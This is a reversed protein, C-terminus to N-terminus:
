ADYKYHKHCARPGYGRGGWKKYLKKKLNSLINQDCVPKLNLESVPGVKPFFSFSTFRWLKEIIQFQFDMNAAFLYFLILDHVVGLFTIFLFFFFLNDTIKQNGTIKTWCNKPMLKQNIFQCIFFCFICFIINNRRTEGCFRPRDRSRLSYFSQVLFFFINSNSIRIHKFFLISIKFTNKVIGGGSLFDRNSWQNTVVNRIRCDVSTYM